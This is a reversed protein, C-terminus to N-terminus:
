IVGKEQLVSWLNKNTINEEWSGAESKSCTAMYQGPMIKGKVKPQWLEILLDVNYGCFEKFSPIRGDKSSTKDDGKGVVTYNDKMQATMLLNTKHVRAWNIPPFLANRVLDNVGEWDGPNMAKKRKEMKCWKEHAYDRLDGIGDIIITQPIENEKLKILKKIEENFADFSGIKDENFNKDYLKLEHLTILKDPYYKEIKKKGRNEMDYYEIPEEATLVQYTKGCGPESYFIGIISSM